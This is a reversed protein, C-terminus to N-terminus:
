ITCFQHLKRKANVYAEHADEKTDFVGLYTKRGHLVIDSRWKGQHPMAGILKSNSDSRAKRHNQMNQAHSAERLNCIRNDSNDGNIHDVCENPFSRNVYMWALRHALYRKGGVGIYIRGDVHKTGAQKGRQAANSLTKIWTFVGTEPAYHLVSTLESHSLNISM